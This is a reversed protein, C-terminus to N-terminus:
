RCFENRQANNYEKIIEEVPILLEESMELIDDINMDESVVIDEYMIVEYTTNYLYVVLLCHPAIELEECHIVTDHL